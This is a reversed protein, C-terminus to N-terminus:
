QRRGLLTEPTWRKIASAIARKLAPDADISWDLKQYTITQDEKAHFFILAKVAPYRQPLDNLADRYWALRDGGVALSGFEAVMVPKGFSALRPYKSGFIEHFTRWQSWGQGLSGYNLAGTAVWDVYQSGPYYTDWQSYAVHPSWTWIVNHAGARQFRQWVHRWAAMFEENTNNQPGWPYRYPDNMEHAFRLFLPKGFDAADAAWRDVYFDYDGRAVAGMGHHDRADRLPLLPHRANEFDTLWPEWTIIPVSGMDWIATALHEPFREKAADGWACYVHVLPLTAGIAQEFEVVGGLTGPLGSDYAGLLVSEPQRLRDPNLHYQAFWALQGNRGLGGELNQLIRHEISGFATGVWDLSAELPGESKSSFWTLGSMAGLSTALVAATLALRYVRRM